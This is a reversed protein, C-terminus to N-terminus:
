KSGTFAIGAILQRQLVVFIVIVPLTAMLSGAMLVPYETVHEGQLASLGASLTMKEPETNVILPWMLDKWSWLVTLVGFAILGPRALPLMVSWFIRLPNAGDLRAAEEIEDPLGLFFQRLMFTGFASFMGPLFLAPLTNLLGLGQVIQYQPILFLQDPVMLVSLLVVFVANRGPFRLRAFAYAALSCFLLQALTRVVTMVVTNAFQRVFPTSNWVEAFNSWAFSPVWVPPVRTSETFTKLATLVEWVFPLVMAAAGVALVVHVPWLRGSRM